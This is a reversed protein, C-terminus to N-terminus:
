TYHSQDIICTATAGIATAVPDTHTSTLKLMPECTPCGTAAPSTAVPDTATSATAAQETPNATLKLMPETGTVTGPQATCAPATNTARPRHWPETGIATGPQATCALGTATPETPNASPKHTPAVM